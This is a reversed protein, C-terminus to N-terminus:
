WFRLGEHYCSVIEVLHARPTTTRLCHRARQAYSYRCGQLLGILQLFFLVCWTLRTGETSSARRLIQILTKVLHCLPTPLLPVKQPPYPLWSPQTLPTSATTGHLRPAPLGPAGLARCRPQCPAQSCLYQTCLPAACHIWSRLPGRTCGKNSIPEPWRSLQQQLQKCSVM